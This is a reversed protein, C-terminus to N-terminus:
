HTLAAVLPLLLSATYPRLCSIHGIVLNDYHLFVWKMALWVLKLASPITAHKVCPLEVATQFCGSVLTVLFIETINKGSVNSRGPGWLHQFGVKFGM